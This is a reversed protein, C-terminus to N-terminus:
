WREEERMQILADSLSIGDKRPPLQEIDSIDLDSREAPTIEGRAIMAAFAREAPSVPTLRAIVEGRSTIEATEEAETLERIVRAAHQQLERIPIRRVPAPREEIITTM